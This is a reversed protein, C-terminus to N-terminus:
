GPPGVKICITDWSIDGKDNSSSLKVTKMKEVFTNMEKFADLSIINDQTSPDNVEFLLGIYGGESPFM